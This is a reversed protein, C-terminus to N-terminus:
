SFQHQQQLKINRPNAEEPRHSRREVDEDLEEHLNGPCGCRRFQSPFANALIRKWALHQLKSEHLIIATSERESADKYLSVVKPGAAFFWNQVWPLLQCLTQVSGYLRLGSIPQHPALCADRTWCSKAPACPYQPWQNMHGHQGQHNTVKLWSVYNFTCMHAGVQNWWSTEKPKSRRTPPKEERCRWWTRRAFQRPVWVKPIPVPICKGLHTKMCSTTTQIWALNNCNVREWVRGQITICGKSRSCLILEASMAAIPLTNPRKRVVQPRIYTPSTGSLCWTNLLKQRTRMSITTM